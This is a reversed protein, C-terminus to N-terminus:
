VLVQSITARTQTLNVTSEMLMFIKGTLLQLIPLVPKQGYRIQTEVQTKDM